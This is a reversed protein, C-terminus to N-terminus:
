SACLFWGAGGSYPVAVTSATALWLVGACVAVAAALLVLGTSALDSGMYGDVRDCVAQMRRRLWRPQDRETAVGRRSGVGLM